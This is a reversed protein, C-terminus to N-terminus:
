FMCSDSINILPNPIRCIELYRLFITEYKGVPRRTVARSEARRARRRSTRSLPTDVLLRPLGPMTCHVGKGKVTCLM